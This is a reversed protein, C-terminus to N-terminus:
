KIRWNTDPTKILCDRSREYIRGALAEDIKMLEKIGIESSIITRLNKDNYRANIIEFALRLDADTCGGKFFDDIYLVNVQKLKGMKKTYLETDTVMGKLATSEDRWSMYYVEIGRSIFRVCAATCIHTKGSGSRGSIHMWGSDGDSFQEVASKIRKREEDPTQYNEFTYRGLMDMMGSQRIKRLSRRQAMCSCEKSMLCGDERQWVIRGTNNCKECNVGGLGYDDLTEVLQTNFTSTKQAKRLMAMIAEYKAERVKTEDM